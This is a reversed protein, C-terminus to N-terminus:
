SKIEEGNETPQLWRGHISAEKKLNLFDDPKCGDGNAEALSMVM